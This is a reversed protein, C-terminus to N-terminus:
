KNSNRLLTAKRWWDCTNTLRPICYLPDDCGYAKACAMDRYPGEIFHSLVEAYVDKISRAGDVTVFNTETLSIQKFLNNVRVLDDVREFHNIAGDRQQIRLVAVEPPTQIWFTIDPHVVGKRIRGEIDRLGGVRAGQYALTSYFYRDLIVIHGADLAPGVKVKLHEQRDAIFLELEEEFPLRGSQASARLKAGYAGDTPEKSLVVTEGAAALDAALQQAQTTKGAGDIGDFVVLIGPYAKM